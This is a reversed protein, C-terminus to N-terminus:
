DAPAHAQPLSVTFTTGVGVESEFGISGAHAEIIQRSIALGLGSGGVKRTREEEVRYFRKFIQDRHEEPIGVGTDQITLVVREDVPKLGVEVHGGSENYSIANTLLNALVQSMAEPDGHVAADELNLEVRVGREEALPAVMVAVDETISKLDCTQRELALEGSDSRALTLLSSVLAKMRRAARHCAEVVERYEEASRERVLSTETQALIVSVPTRLEHSADAVFRRQEQFGAELREFTGNLVRALRGLESKNEDIPVRESLNSASVREAAESIDEIPRIARKSLFWGGGFGVVLVGLGTAFLLWALQRLEQLEKDIFRGTVMRLGRPGPQSLERGERGARRIRQIRTGEVNQQGSDLLEEPLNLSELLKGDSTWLGFYPSGEADPNFRDEFGPPLRGRPGRPSGPEPRPGNLPAPPEGEPGRERDGGLAGRGFTERGFRRNSGRSRGGRGRRPRLWRFAVSSVLDASTELHTDVESMRAHRVLGFLTAGFGGVVLLLLVTQWILFNWRISKFM